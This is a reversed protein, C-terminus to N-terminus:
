EKRLELVFDATKPGGQKVEIERSVSQLSEQWVELTYSGPPLGRIEYKGAADTVAFYPHDVVGIWASMWPHVDDKIKIMTEARDFTRTVDPCGKPQGFNFGMGNFPLAHACHDHPDSNRIVFDQGVQVGAVHPEYRCGKQNLLVPTKPAEFKRGELGAKVFVFAGQIRNQPDLILEERPMGAPYLPACHPCTIRMPKKKKINLDGNLSVTGTVTTSADQPAAALTGILLVFFARM